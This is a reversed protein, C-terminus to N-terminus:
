GFASGVMGCLVVPLRGHAAMWDATLDDFVQAFRERSEAAGPGKRIELARGNVDCLALRLNSTGWDGAIYAAVTM